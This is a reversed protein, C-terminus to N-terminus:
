SADCATSFFSIRVLFLSFTYLPLSMTHFGLGYLWCKPDKVAKLVNDWSFREDLTADSDAALRAHIFRREDDSLFKATDPYNEIFWYAGVAIVV